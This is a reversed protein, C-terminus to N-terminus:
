YIDNGLAFDKFGVLVDDLVIAEENNVSFNLADARAARYDERAGFPEGYFIGRTARDLPALVSAADARGNDLPGHLDAPGTLDSSM